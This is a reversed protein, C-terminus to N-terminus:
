KEHSLMADIQVVRRTGEMHRGQASMFRVHLQITLDIVLYCCNGSSTQITGEPNNKSRFRNASKSNLFVPYEHKQMRKLPGPSGQWSPLYFFLNTCIQVTPHKTIEYQHIQRKWQFMDKKTEKWFGLIWQHIM